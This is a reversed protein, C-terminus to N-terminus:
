ARRTLLARYAHMAAAQIDGDHEPVDMAAMLLEGDHAFALDEIRGQHVDSGTRWVELPAACQQLVGHRLIVMRDGLTMAEEQDHTVYVVTMRLERHLDKLETRM